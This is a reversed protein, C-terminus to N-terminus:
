FNACVGWFDNVFLVAKLVAGHNPAAGLPDMLVWQYNDTSTISGTTMDVDVQNNLCTNLIVCAASHDADFCFLKYRDIKKGIGYSRREIQPKDAIVLSLKKHSDLWGPSFHYITALEVVRKSPKGECYRFPHFMSSMILKNKNM